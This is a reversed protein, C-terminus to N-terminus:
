RQWQLLQRYTATWRCVVPDPPAGVDEPGAAGQWWLPALVKKGSADPVRAVILADAGSAGADIQRYWAVQHHTFPALARHVSDSLWRAVDQADGTGLGLCQLTFLAGEEASGDGARRAGLRLYQTRQTIEIGERAWGTEVVQRARARADSQEFALFDSHSSFEYLCTYEPAAMPPNASQRYLTAQLLGPFGMLLHVHDNYWRLLAVHDGNKCRTAVLNICATV